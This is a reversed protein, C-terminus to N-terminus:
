AGNTTTTESGGCESDDPLQNTADVHYVARRVIGQLVTHVAIEVAAIEEQNWEGGAKLGAVFAAVKSLVDRAGYCNELCKRVAENIKLQDINCMGDQKGNANV